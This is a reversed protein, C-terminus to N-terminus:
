TRSQKRVTPTADDYWSSTDARNLYQTQRVLQGTANYEFRKVAGTADVEYELRGAADYFRYPRGGPPAEVMGERHANHYVYRTERTTGDGTQRISVLRGRSDYRRTETLDSAATM